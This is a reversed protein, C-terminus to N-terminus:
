RVYVIVSIKEPGEIWVEVARPVPVVPTDWSGDPHAERADWVVWPLHLLASPAVYDAVDFHDEEVVRSGESREESDGVKLGRNTARRDGRRRPTVTGVGRVPQSADRGPCRGCALSPDGAPGEEVGLFM